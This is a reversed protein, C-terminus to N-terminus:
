HDIVKFVAYEGNKYHLTLFDADEPNWGGLYRENPGWFVYDIGMDEIFATRESDTTQVQYFAEIRPSIEDLHISEPGHGTLVYVAAWAPIANSTQYSALVINERTNKDTLSIFAEVEDAPRYVPENRSLSTSIGGILLLISTPYCLTLLMGSRRWATSGLSELGMITLAVIAIWIGEPLRRQIGIPAYALIPLSLAWALPLKAEWNKEKFLQRGGLVVFPITIGYALLYFLPNPSRFISQETWAQIYPDTKTGLLNYLIFPGAIISATLLLQIIKWLRQIDAEQNTASLLVQWAALYLIYIGCVAGFVMGTLPQALGTLLWLVGISIGERLIKIQSPNKVVELFAVLSFLLMGRALSYHPYALLSLFGFSEPSYFSLPLADFNTPQNFFFLIWGIGGGLIGLSLGFFRLKVDKIFESLFYYTGIMAFCGALFRYIHYIIVLKQHLFPPNALKGALIYTPFILFGGQDFATYPTRFLWEGVQGALMKGIFANGDEVSIVFGTFKWAAGQMLFGILYPTTTLVMIFISILYLFHKERKAITSMNKPSQNGQYLFHM